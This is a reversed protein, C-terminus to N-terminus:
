LTAIATGTVKLPEGLDKIDLKEYLFEGLEHVKSSFKKIKEYDKDNEDFLELYDHMMMGACSGSPVLIPYDENFLNANFLAIKKSEEYYGSNYSPQGCCTQDKKFVVEYGAQKLLWVVNMITSGMMAQGLCTSYLYVKM